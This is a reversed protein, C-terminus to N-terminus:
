FPQLVHPDESTASSCGSQKEISLFSCILHVFVNRYVHIFADNDSIVNM